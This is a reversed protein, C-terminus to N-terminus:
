FSKVINTCYKINRNRQPIRWCNEVMKNGIENCLSPLTQYLFYFNICFNIRFGGSFLISPHWLRLLTFTNDSPKVLCWAMLVYVSISTYSWANKFKSSSSPSHEAEREPRKVEPSFAGRYRSSLLSPPGRLLDPGM